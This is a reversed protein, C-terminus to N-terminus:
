WWGRFFILVTDKDGELSARTLPTGDALSASFEPFPRGAAVSGTYAPLSTYSQLAWGEFGALAACFLFGLVRWVTGRRLLSMLVLVAGLVALAPAYWPTTLIGASMQAVYLILGAPATVVGLWLLLRGRSRPPALTSTTNMIERYGDRRRGTM